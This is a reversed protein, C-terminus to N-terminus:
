RRRRLALGGIGTLGTALAILTSPEPVPAPGNVAINDWRVNGTVAGFDQSHGYKLAVVLQTKSLNTNVAGGNGGTAPSLAASQWDWVGGASSPLNQGWSDKKFAIDGAAGADIRAVIDADTLTPDIRFFMVEAWSGVLGINGKWDASLTYSSSPAAQIRQFWGFSGSGANIRARIAPAPTGDTTIMLYEQGSGWSASWRTWGDETGAAFDGNTVLNAAFAPTALALVAILICFRKM